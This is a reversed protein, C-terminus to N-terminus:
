KENDSMRVSEEFKLCFKDLNNLIKNNILNKCEIESSCANDFNYFHHNASLYINNNEINKIETNLKYKLEKDTNFLPLKFKYNVEPYDKIIKGFALGIAKFKLSNHLLLEKSINQTPTLDDVSDYFAEVEIKNKSGFYNIRTRIESDEYGYAYELPEEIFNYGYKNNVESVFVKFNALNLNFGIIKLFITNKITM